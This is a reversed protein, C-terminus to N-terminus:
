DPPTDLIRRIREAITRPSAPKLLFERIGAKRAISENVSDSFGTTLIVPIEPRLALARRALELGLLKPMTQDTVIIDFSAPDATFAQMAAASDTYGSVRYGMMELGQRMVSVISPEDDVVLVREEGRVLGPVPSPTRGPAQGAESVPLYVDFESGERPASRVTVHGRHGQVISHVTALGLGTGEGARKTTFYPEFIREMTDASMGAGTDAVSLCVYDGAPFGAGALPSGPGITEERLRVTLEGGQSRMAHYANTCLNMIMQHMQMPDALVPRCDQLDMTIAITSPFSGRILQACEGAILHLKVHRREQNSRRSFALIQKVLASARQGANHIEHLHRALDSGAEASMLALEAYGLIPSLMNNFDHAIGGALTGIAELKQAQRLRAELEVERTVDRAVSVFSIIAGSQDRISSITADQELFEGSKTKNIFRGQWVQGSLLSEWLRAYFADEMQGSRLIRPTQGITEERSYGMLKEFAPNVYQIIGSADTIMISEAAHEVAAALRSRAESVEAARLIESSVSALLHGLDRDQASFPADSERFLLVFGALADEHGGLPLALLPGPIAPGSGGSFLSVPGAVGSITVPVRLRILADLAGDALSRAPLEAPLDCDGTVHALWFDAGRALYVAGSAAGTAFRMEEFVMPALAAPRQVGALRTTSEVVGRLRVTLALLELNRENLAAEAVQKAAELDIREFCRELTTLLDLGDIPKRLYNYAGQQLAEIATDLAAHGTMMVCLIDPCVSKLQGILAIGNDRGLRIDLLAVHPQFSAAIERAEEAGGASQALYGEADLIDGIAASFDADDDVVLIRRRSSAHGEIEASEGFYRVVTDVM